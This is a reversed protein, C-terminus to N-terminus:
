FVAMCQPHECGKELITTFGYQIYNDNYKRKTVSKKISSYAM